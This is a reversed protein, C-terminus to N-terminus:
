SDGDQGREGVSQMMIHEGEIQAKLLLNKDGTVLGVKPHTRRFFLCADLIRDDFDKVAVVVM